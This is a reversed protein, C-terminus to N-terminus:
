QRLTGRIAMAESLEEETLKEKLSDRRRIDMVNGAEALISQWAFALPKNQPIGDGNLYMIGLNRQALAYGKRAAKRYWHVAQEPDKEVGEGYAYAVGVKYQAPVHGLEASRLFAEFAKTNDRPVGDGFSHALGEKYRELAELAEEFSQGPEGINATSEGTEAPTGTSTQTVASDEELPEEDDKGFLRGFFGKKEPDDESDKVEEVASEDPQIQPLPGQVAVNEEMEEEDSDKGFLRKFFGKKPEEADEEGVVDNELQENQLAAEIEAASTSKVATVRRLNDVNHGAAVHGQDAAKEYWKIAQADNQDVGEGMLYMNGLSYQADAYGQKAAERYWHSAEIYNQSIGLGQYYLLGLQYQADPDGASAMDYFSSYAGEYNGNELLTFAARLNEPDATYGPVGEDDGEEVAEADDTEDDQKGAGFLSGFFGKKKPTEEELAASDGTDDADEESIEPTGPVTSSADDTMAVTGTETDMEEVAAGDKDKGFLRSFFGKKEQGDEDLAATDDAKDDLEVGTEETSEQLQPITDTDGEVMAVAGDETSLAEATDDAIDQEDKDKGFLRAFFGKKEAKDEETGTVEEVPQEAVPEKAPLPQEMAEVRADADSIVEDAEDRDKKGFLRKFFGKQEPESEAMAESGTDTDDARAPEETEVPMSQDEAELETATDSASEAPGGELGYAVATEGDAATEGGALASEDMSLDEVTVERADQKKGFLKKFFGFRSGQEGKSKQEEEVQSVTEVSDETEATDAVPLEEVTDSVGAPAGVATDASAVAEELMTDEDQQDEVAEDADDKGFLNRFFGRVRGPKQKPAAAEEAVMDEAAAQERSDDMGPASDDSVQEETEDTDSLALLDSKEVSVLPESEDQAPTATSRVPQPTPQPTPRSQSRRAGAIARELSALENTAPAYGQDAAMRYWRLAQNYDQALGKGSRYMSGLNYQAAADGQDAAQRYWSVAEQYDQPVGDGTHYRTALQVQARAYGQEAALQFWKVAESSDQKVGEGYSYSIGLSYQAVMHGQEAARRYWNAAEEYDQRIGEGFAFAVALNYQADRNGQVAAKRYWRVSEEFNKEVGEGMYYMYGLHAQAAADGANALRRFEESAAQYDGRALAANASNIDAMTLSSCLCLSPVLILAAKKIAM